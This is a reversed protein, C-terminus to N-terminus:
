VTLAVNMQGHRTQMMDITPQMLEKVIGMLGTNQAWLVAQAGGAPQDLPKQEAGLTSQLEVMLEAKMELKMREMAQAPLGLKLETPIFSSSIACWNCHATM